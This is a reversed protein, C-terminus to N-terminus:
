ADRSGVEVDPRFPVACTPTHMPVPADCTPCFDDYRDRKYHERVEAITGVGLVEARLLDLVQLTRVTFCDSRVLRDMALDVGRLVPDLAIPDSEGSFRFDPNMRATPDDYEPM